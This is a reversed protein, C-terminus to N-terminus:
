VSPPATPSPSPAPSAPAPEVPGAGAPSEKPATLRAVEAEAEDWTEKFSDLRGQLYVQSKALEKQFEDQKQDFKAKAQAARKRAEIIDVSDALPIAPSTSAAEPPTMVKDEM